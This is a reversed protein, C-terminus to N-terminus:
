VPQLYKTWREHAHPNPLVWGMPIKSGNENSPETLFTDWSRRIAIFTELDKEASTLGWFAPSPICKPGFLAMEWEQTIKREKAARAANTDEAANQELMVRLGQEEKSYVRHADNWIKTLHDSVKAFAARDELSVKEGRQIAAHERVQRLKVLSSILTLSKRADSKKKTVEALVCDADKKMNEEMKAREVGDKMNELWQDIEKHAKRRNEHMQSMNETHQKRRRKQSERKKRRKEVTKRLQIMVDPNEFKSILKSFEDKILGIEMTKKKWDISSMTSANQRLFEQLNELKNLVHLCNRLSSKAEPIHVVNTAPKVKKSDETAKIEVTSNLNIQIKGIKSLWTEIWLEDDTKVDINSLPKPLSLDYMQPVVQNSPPMQTPISNPIANYYAYNSAYNLRPDSNQYSPAINQYNSTAFVHSNNSGENPNYLPTVPVENSNGYSHNKQYSYYDM